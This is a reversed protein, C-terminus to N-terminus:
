SDSSTICLGAYRPQVSPSFIGSSFHGDSLASMPTVFVHCCHLFGCTHIM